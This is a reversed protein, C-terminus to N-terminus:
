FHVAKKFNEKDELYILGDEVFLKNADLHRLAAPHNNTMFIHRLDGRRQLYQIWDLYDLFSKETLGLAPDELTLMQPQHLTAAILLVLKQMEYSVDRFKIDLFRSIEFHECAEEFIKKQIHEKKETQTLVKKILMNPHPRQNEFYSGIMQQERIVDEDGEFLNYENWTVRGTQPSKRGALLELLCVAHIPNSAQIIITQDMPIELDVSQLIPDFGDVLISVNEFTIQDLSLNKFHGM